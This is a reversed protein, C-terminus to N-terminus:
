AKLRDLHEKRFKAVKPAIIVQCYPQFGNNRFYNQHYDEAVYFEDFPEVETVIPDSWIGESELDSIVREAVARQQDDHYFIVSRYQTGVDAGQRNLTTPDHITFYVELIDKYSVVSPDFTVQVVEAHGTTEACVARYTPNSVHGGSYGSEVKEVGRLEQYVAELCWFCGGGLTAVERASGNMRDDTTM